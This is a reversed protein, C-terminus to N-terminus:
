QGRHWDGGICQKAVKVSEKVQKEGNKTIKLVRGRHKARLKKSRPPDGSRPPKRPEGVALTGRQLARFPGSLLAGSKGGVHVLNASAAM